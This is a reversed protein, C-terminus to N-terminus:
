KEEKYMPYYYSCYPADPFIPNYTWGQVWDKQTRYRTTHATYLSPIEEYTLEQLKFYLEKRKEPRTERIAAEVLRDMEPNSYRQDHPYNGQSHLLPFAFNHPDAYDALWGMLFMPLKHAVQADLYTSWLVPRVEVRFKPNLREVNRKLIQAAIQRQINGTNHTLTFRFGKKWVQGGWAKQFHEAAEKLDYEHVKQNPNYGLLGKPIPGVARIAKGSFADQIFAQYDFAHAFGERVNKDQFFDPPVGNGDLKGSGIDPNGRDEIQFTFFIVPNAEITPLDEVIEVGPMGQVQHYYAQDAYISDADGAQLLLKRTSFEDVSKHLIRKLRAPKRWYNENRALIVQKSERDWAELQFPGTGNTREYFATGQKKPNNYQIWTKETGDWDGNQTAWRQSVIAGWSTLISLFPSYPRILRIIVSDGQIRVARDAKRYSEKLLAGSKDRTSAQGLIPELLLSAPGGARDQLMFRLLSYKVDQPTLPTADHFRVGKRIPFAYTLGDPSILGNERNPVQTALSPEFDTVSSGKYRVLFEYINDQISHSATDYAWAPDLTDWDGATIHVYTDPNKVAAHLPIAYLWCCAALLIQMKKM